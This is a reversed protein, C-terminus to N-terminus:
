HIVIMKTYTDIGGGKIYIIYMGSGVYKGAREDKKDWELIKQIGPVVDRTITKVRRGKLDYIYLTITDEKKINAYIKVNEIDPTVKNPVIKITNVESIKQSVVIKPTGSGQASSVAKSYNTVVADDYAFATYYYTIGGTLGTDTYSTATGNYVIIGDSVDTPYNNTNRVIITGVYDTLPTGDENTTPNNWSLILSDVASTVAFNNVPAPATENLGFEMNDIYFTWDGPPFDSDAMFKIVKIHSKDATSWGFDNLSIEVKQWNTTVKVYNTLDLKNDTNNDNVDQIEIRAISNPNGKIWFRLVEFGSANGPGSDHEAWDAPQIGFGNSNCSIAGGAYGGAIQSIHWKISTYGKYKINTSTPINGWGNPDTEITSGGGEWKWSYNWAGDSPSTDEYAFKFNSRQIINSYVFKLDDIYLTWDGSPENENISFNITKLNALDVGARFSFDSFPITVKKWTSDASVYDALLLRDSKKGNVSELEIGVQKLGTGEAKVWFELTNALSIDKGTNFETWNDPPTGDNDPDTGIICWAYNGSAKTHIFHLKLSSNGSYYETTSITVDGNSNTEIVSTGGQGDISFNWGNDSISDDDVIWNFIVQSISINPLLMLSTILSFFIIKKM